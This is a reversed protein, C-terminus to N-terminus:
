PQPAVIFEGFMVYDHGPVTCVYKFTGSRGPVFRIEERGGGPVLGTKAGPFTPQLYPAREGVAVIWLDHQVADANRVTLRVEAGGPVRLVPGPSRGDFRLGSTITLTIGQSEQGAPPGTPLLRYVALAGVLIMGSAVAASVKLSM